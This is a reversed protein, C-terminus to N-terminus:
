KRIATATTHVGVALFGAVIGAEVGPAGLFHFYGAVGGVLLAAPLTLWGSVKGQTDISKIWEIVAIIAAALTFGEM